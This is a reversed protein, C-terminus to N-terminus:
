NDSVCEEETAGCRKCVRHEYVATRPGSQRPGDYAVVESRVDWLHSEVVGHDGCRQCLRRERCSDISEVDYQHPDPGPELRGCKDCCLPACRAAVNSFIHFGVACKLSQLL